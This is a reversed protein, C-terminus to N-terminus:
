SKTQNIIESKSCLEFVESRRLYHISEISQNKPDHLFCVYLTMKAISNKM